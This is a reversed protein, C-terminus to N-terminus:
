TAAAARLAAAAVPLDHRDLVDATLGAVRGADAPERGSGGVLLGAAAGDVALPLPLARVQDGVDVPLLARVAAAEAAALVRPGGSLGQLAAQADPDLRRVPTQCTQPAAGDGGVVTVEGDAVVVLAAAPAVSPVLHRVAVVGLRRLNLVGASATALDLLWTDAATADVAPTPTPIELV